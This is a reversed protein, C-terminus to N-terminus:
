RKVAITIDEHDVKGKHGAGHNLGRCPVQVCDVIVFGAHVLQATTAGTYLEHPTDKTNVIFPAGFKLCRWVQRFVQGQLDYFRARARPSRRPNTSATNNPNLEYTPQRLATRLRHVYTHRVSDDLAHFNDAMGSPYVPSTVAASFLEYWTTPLATSDGFRVCPHMARAYGPEIEVAIPEFTGPGAQRCIDAFRWGLGGFPDLVYGATAHERLLRALVPVLQPSYQAPHITSATM